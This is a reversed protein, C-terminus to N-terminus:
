IDELYPEQQNENKFADPNESKKSLIKQIENGQRGILINNAVQRKSKPDMNKVDIEHKLKSM